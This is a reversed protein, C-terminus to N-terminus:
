DGKKAPLDPAENSGVRKVAVEGSYVKTEAEQYPQDQDYKGEMMLFEIHNNLDRAGGAEIHPCINTTNVITVFPVLVYRIPVYRKIQKPLSDLLHQFWTAPFRVADGSERHVHTKAAFYGKLRFVLEQTIHDAYHELRMNMLNYRPIGYEACVKELHFQLKKIVTTDEM